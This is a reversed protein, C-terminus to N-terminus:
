ADLRAVLPSRTSPSMADCTFRDVVPTAPEVTGTVRQGNVRASFIGRSANPPGLAEIDVVVDLSWLGTAQRVAAEIVAEVPAQGLRGRVLRPDPARESLQSALVEPAITDLRALLVAEPLLLANPAFRDGGLHSCQVTPPHLPRLQRFLRAGYRGCCLDHKSHTCVALLSGSEFRPKAEWVLNGDRAIATSGPPLEPHRVLLLRLGESDALSAAEPSTEEATTSWPQPYSFLLYGAGEPPTGSPSEGWGRSRDSCYPEESRQIM